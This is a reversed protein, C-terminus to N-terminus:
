GKLHILFADTRCESHLLKKLQVVMLILCGYSLVLLGIGVVGSLM